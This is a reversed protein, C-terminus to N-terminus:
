PESHVGLRKLQEEEEKQAGYEHRKANARLIANKISGLEPKIGKVKDRDERDVSAKFFEDLAGLTKHMSQLDRVNRELFGVLQEDQMAELKSSAPGRAGLPSLTRIKRELDSRFVNYNVKERVPVGKVPDIYELDYVVADQEKNFAQKLLKKIKQMLGQKRAQLVAQSSDMKGAIETLTQAMGGLGYVGDILISKFSVEAKVAKPKADAVQLRKLLAERLAPGEGSYDEKIVEEVLDPYFPTGKKVQAFKKKVAQVNSADSQSMGGTVDRLDLKYVERQYDSLTKLYGM